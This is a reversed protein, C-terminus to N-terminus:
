HKYKRYYPKGQWYTSQDANYPQGISNYKHDNCAMRTRVKFNLATGTKYVHRNNGYM